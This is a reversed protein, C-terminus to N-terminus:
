ATGRSSRCCSRWGRGGLHVGPRGTRGGPQELVPLAVSTADAGNGDMADDPVPVLVDSHALTDLAAQDEANVALADLAQQAPTPLGEHAPTEM